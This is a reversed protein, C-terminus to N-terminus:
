FVCEPRVGRTRQTANRIPLLRVQKASISEGFCLLLTM